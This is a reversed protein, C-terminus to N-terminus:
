ITIPEIRGTYTSKAVSLRDPSVFSMYTEVPEKKMRKSIPLIATGTKREVGYLIIQATKSQTGFVLLMVQDLSGETHPEPLDWSFKLEENVVEVLPNQAEQLDGTSLLVNEYDMEIDPYEGKLAHKKNYSTALNHYNRITGAAALSFGVKLFPGIPRFFENLVTMRQQNARQKKSFRTIKREKIRIVNQGNLVYATTGGTSGTVKGNIGGLLKGM